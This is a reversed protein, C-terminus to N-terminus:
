AGSPALPADGLSTVEPPVFKHEADLAAWYANMNQKFGPIDGKAQAAMAANRHDEPKPTVNQQRAPSTTTVQAQGTKFVEAMAGLTTELAPVDLSSSEVLALTSDNLLQPFKLLTRLRDNKAKQTAEAATSGEFKTKLGEVEAAQTKWAEAQTNLTTLQAVAADREGNAKEAESQHKKVKQEWAGVTGNHRDISIYKSKLAEPLEDAVPGGGAAGDSAADLLFTPHRFFKLSM